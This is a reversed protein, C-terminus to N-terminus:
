MMNVGFRHRRKAFVRYGFAVLAYIGPLRLLSPGWRRASSRAVIEIVADIGKYAQEKEDIFHVEKMLADKSIGAAEAEKIGHIEVGSMRQASHAGRTCIKCSDDYYLKGRKEM